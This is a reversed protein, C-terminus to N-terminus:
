LVAALGIHRAQLQRAVAQATRLPKLCPKQIARGRSGFHLSLRGSAASKSSGAPVLVVVHRIPCCLCASAMSFIALFVPEWREV